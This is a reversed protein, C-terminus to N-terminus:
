FGKEFVSRGHGSDQLDLEYVRRDLDRKTIKGQAYAAVYENLKSHPNPLDDYAERALREAEDYLRARFAVRGENHKPSFLEHQGMARHVQNLEIRAHRIFAKLLRVKAGPSFMDVYNLKLFPNPIQCPDLRVPVLFISGFPFEDLVDLAIKLEKQVFGRRDVCNSSLCAIFYDTERIQKEIEPRFEIGPALNHVDMWPKCGVTSLFRYVPDVLHLDARTYSIFIRPLRQPINAQMVSM